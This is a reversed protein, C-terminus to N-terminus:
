AGFSMTASEDFKRTYGTMQPLRVCLPRIMDNDNFGIFYKFANNTGYPEKKSVLIKNVDIDDIQFATKSKYFKGKNNKQWWFKHEKWENKYIIFFLYFLKKYYNLCVCQSRINQKTRLSKILLKLPIFIELINIGM